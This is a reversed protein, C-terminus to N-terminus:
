GFKIIWLVAAVTAIYLLIFFIHSFRIKIKKKYPKHKSGEESIDLTDDESSEEAATEEPVDKEESGHVTEDQEGATEIGKEEAEADSSVPQDSRSADDPIIEEAEESVTEAPVANESEAEVPNEAESRASGGESDAGEAVDYGFASFLEKGRSYGFAKCLYKATRDWKDHNWTSWVIKKDPYAEALGDFLEELKNGVEVVDYGPQIDLENFEPKSM